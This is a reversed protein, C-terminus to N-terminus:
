LQSAQLIMIWAGCTQRDDDAGRVRDSSPGMGVAWLGCGVACLVTSLVCCVACLLASGLGLFACCVAGHEDYLGGELSVWGNPAVGPVTSMYLYQETNLLISNWEPMTTSSSSLLPRTRSQETTSYIQPIASRPASSAGCVV